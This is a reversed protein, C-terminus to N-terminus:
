SINTPMAFSPMMGAGKYGSGNEFRWGGMGDPFLQTRTQFCGMVCQSQNKNLEACLQCPTKMFVVKYRYELFTTVCFLGLAVVAVIILVFRALRYWDGVSLLRLEAALSRPQPNSQPSSINDKM